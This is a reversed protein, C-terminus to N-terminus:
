PFQSDARGPWRRSPSLSMTTFPWREWISAVQAYWWASYLSSARRYLSKIKLRIGNLCTRIQSFWCRTEVPIAIQGKIFVALYLNCSYRQVEWCVSLKWWHCFLSGDRCHWCSLLIFLRSSLSFLLSYCGCAGQALNARASVSIPGLPDNKGYILSTSVQCLSRLHQNRCCWSLLGAAERTWAALHAWVIMSWLSVLRKCTWGEM